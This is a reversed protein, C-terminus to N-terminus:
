SIIEARIGPNMVEWAKLYIEIERRAQEETPVARMEVDLDSSGVPTVACEASRLYHALEGRLAPDSIRVVM